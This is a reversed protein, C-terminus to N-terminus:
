AAVYASVLGLVMERNLRIGHAQGPDVAAECIGTKIIDLLRPWLLNGPVTVSIAEPADLPLAFDQCTFLPLEQVGGASPYTLFQMSAVDHETGSRVLALFEANALQEYLVVVRSPDNRLGQLTSVLQDQMIKRITSSAAYRKLKAAGTRRGSSCITIRCCVCQGLGFGNRSQAQYRPSPGSRCRGRMNRDQHHRAAQAM